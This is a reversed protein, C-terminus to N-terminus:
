GNTCTNGLSPNLGGVPHTSNGCINIPANIPPQGGTSGPLGIAAAPSPQFVAVAGLASLFLGAASAAVTRRLKTNM